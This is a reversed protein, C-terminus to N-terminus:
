PGAAGSLPPPNALAPECVIVDGGGLTGPFRALEPCGTRLARGLAPDDVYDTLTHVVLLRTPASTAQHWDDLTKLCRWSARNFYREVPFCAPGAAAVRAGRVAAEDLYRVAGTFDQKPLRYNRPLGISSAAVFALTLAVLASVPSLPRVRAALTGAVLGLGRGAFIAAGGALFFVFRPRLPHGLAALALGTVVGPAVLLAVALPQRRWLSIAGAAALLGGAIAAPVGAGSLLQRLAEGLAWRATAVQAAQQSAEANMEDRLGDLFPLYLLASLMAAGMWTWLLPVLHQRTAPRWGLARGGLVVAVHGAVVFAMTLHTYVGATAALAYWLYDRTRRTEAARLLMMTTMLTLAGLLTYGRANQSFWIHHYSTALLAAGAWAEARSTLRAGLAYVLAITVVGFVAAPLRLAAASEGLAALSAHALVSYLPHANVGSFETVIQRLPLRASDVLTVIEDYWLGSGLGALRLVAALALTALLATRWARAATEETKSWM